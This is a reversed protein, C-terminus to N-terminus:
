QKYERQQHASPRKLDRWIFSELQENFRAACGQAVESCHELHKMLDPDPDETRTLKRHFSELLQNASPYYGAERWSRKGTAARKMLVFNYTDVSVGWDENLLWTPQKPKRM